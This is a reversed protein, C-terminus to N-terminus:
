SSGAPRPMGSYRQACNVDRFDSRGCSESLCVQNSRSNLVYAVVRLLKASTSFRELDIIEEIKAQLHQKSTNVLSHVLEQLNKVLESSILEDNLNEECHVPWHEPEQKLFGAGTVM